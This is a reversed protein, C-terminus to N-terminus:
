SIGAKEGNGSLERDARAVFEWPLSIHSGPKGCGLPQVTWPNLGLGPHPSSIIIDAHRTVHGTQIKRGARCHSLNWSSPLVVQVDGM